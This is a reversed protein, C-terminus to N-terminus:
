RRRRPPCCDKLPFGTMLKQELELRSMSDHRFRFQIIGAQKAQELLKIVKMRSLGLLQSIQQQTKDEHYYYWAAKAMLIEEYNMSVSADRESM